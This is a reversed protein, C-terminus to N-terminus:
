RSIAKGDIIKPVNSAEFETQFCELLGSENMLTGIGGVLSMMTHSGGLVLVVNFSDANTIDLGKLWLSLDFTVCPTRIKLQKAQNLIFM